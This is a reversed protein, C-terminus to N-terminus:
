AGGADFREVLRKPARLRWSEELLDALEDRDVAGLRVLLMPHGDYHRTTFFKAPEAALLMEKEELNARWLVLVDGEERLRAFLRDRVRFGPTGYSPKEATDPLALALERVASATTM